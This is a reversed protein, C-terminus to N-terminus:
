YPLLWTSNSPLWTVVYFPLLPARFVLNNNTLSGYFIEKKLAKVCFFMRRTYKEECNDSFVSYKIEMQTLSEESHSLFDPPISMSYSVDAEAVNDTIWEVFVYIIHLIGLSKNSQILYMPRFLATYTPVTHTWKKYSSHLIRTKLSESHELHLKTRKPYNGPTQTRIASTESSVTPEMKM